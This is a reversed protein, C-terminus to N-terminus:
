QPKKTGLLKLHEAKVVYEGGAFDRTGFLKEGDVEEAQVVIVPLNPVTLIGYQPLPVAIPKGVSKGQKVGVFIANGKEVDAAVAARGTIFGTSPLPPWAEAAIATTGFMLAAVLGAIAPRRGIMQGAQMMAIARRKLRMM